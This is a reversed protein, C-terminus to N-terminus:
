GRSFISKYSLLRKTSLNKLKVYDEPNIKLLNCLLLIMRKRHCQLDFGMSRIDKMWRKAAARGAKRDEVYIYRTTFHDAVGRRIRELCYEQVFPRIIKQQSIAKQYEEILRKLVRERHSAYKGRNKPSTSQEPNAVQYHYVVFPFCIMEKAQFFPLVIYEEDVFFTEDQMYFGTSRLLETRYTTSYLTPLLRIAAQFDNYVVEYQCGREKATITTGRHTMMDEIAYDTQIIDIHCNELREVLKELESTNVWDDADVIRFYKGKAAQLAENISSGYGRTNRDLLRFIGPWKQCFTKAIKGSSDTSHNNLILVELRNELIDSCYTCLNKQLCWEMNYTPVAITLVPEM